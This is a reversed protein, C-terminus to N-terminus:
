SLLYADDFEALGRGVQGHLFSRPKGGGRAWKVATERFCSLEFSVEWYRLVGKALIEVDGVGYMLCPLLRLKCYYWANSWRLHFTWERSSCNSGNRLTCSNLWYLCGERIPQDRTERTYINDPLRAQRMTVWFM